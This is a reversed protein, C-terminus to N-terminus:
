DQQKKQQALLETVLRKLEIIEQKMEKLEESLEHHIPANEESLVTSTKTKGEPLATFEPDYQWTKLTSILLPLPVCKTLKTKILAVTPKKGMNAIQNAITLIEDHITM